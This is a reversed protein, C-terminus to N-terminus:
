KREEKLMQYNTSGKGQGKGCKYLTSDTKTTKTHPVPEM